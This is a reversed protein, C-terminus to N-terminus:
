SFRDFLTDITEQSMGIGTDKVTFELAKAEVSIRIEVRGILTFKIANSVFNVLIQKFRNGNILNM